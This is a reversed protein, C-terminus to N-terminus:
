LEYDGFRLAARGAEGAPRPGRGSVYTLTDAEDPPASRVAPQLLESGFPNPLAAEQTPEDSGGPPSAVHRKAKSTKDDLGPVTPKSLDPKAADEPPGAM